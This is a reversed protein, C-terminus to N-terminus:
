PTRTKRAAQTATSPRAEYMPAKEACDRKLWRWGSAAAECPRRLLVGIGDIVCEVLWLVACLSFMLGLFIYDKAEDRTM